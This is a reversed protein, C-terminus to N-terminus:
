YRGWWTQKRGKLRGALGLDVDHLGYVSSFTDKLTIKSKWGAYSKEMSM